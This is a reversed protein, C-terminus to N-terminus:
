QELLIRVGLPERSAKGFLKSALFSSRSVSKGAKLHLSVLPDLLLFLSFPSLEEGLLLVEEKEPGLKNTTM